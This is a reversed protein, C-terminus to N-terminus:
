AAKIEEPSAGFSSSVMGWEEPQLAGMAVSWILDNKKKRRRGRADRTSAFGISHELSFELTAAM